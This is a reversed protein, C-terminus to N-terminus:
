IPPRAFSGSNVRPCPNQQTRSRVQAQGIRAALGRPAESQRTSFWSIDYRSPCQEDPQRRADAERGDPRAAADALCRRARVHRGPRLNAGIVTHVRKPYAELLVRNRESCIDIERGRRDFLLGSIRRDPSIRQEPPQACDGLHALRAETRSREAREDVRPRQRALHILEEGCTGARPCEALELWFRNLDRPTEKGLHLLDGTRDGHRRVRPVLALAVHDVRPDRHV